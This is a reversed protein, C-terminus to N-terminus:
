DDDDDRVYEGQKISRSFIKTTTKLSKISADPQALESLIGFNVPSIQVSGDPNSEILFFASYFGPFLSIGQSIYTNSHYDGYVIKGERDIFYVNRTSLLYQFYNLANMKNDYLGYLSDEFKNDDNIAGFKVYKLIPAYQQRIMNRMEIVAAKVSNSDLHRVQSYWNNALKFKDNNWDITRKDNRFVPNMRPYLRHQADILVEMGRPNGLLPRLGRGDAPRYYHENNFEMHQMVNMCGEFTCKHGQLSSHRRKHEIKARYQKRRMANREDENQKLQELYEDTPPVYVVYDIVIEALETIIHKNLETRMVNDITEIENKIAHPDQYTYKNNVDRYFYDSNEFESIRNYSKREIVAGLLVGRTMKKYQSGGGMENVLEAKKMGFVRMAYSEEIFRYSGNQAQYRNSEKRLIDYLLVKITKGATPVEILSAAAKLDSKKMKALAKFRGIDIKLDM